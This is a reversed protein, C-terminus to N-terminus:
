VASTVGSTIPLATVNEMELVKEPDSTKVSEVPERVSELKLMVRVALSLVPCESTLMVPVLESVRVDICILPSLAVHPVSSVGNNLRPVPVIMPVAVVMDVMVRETPFPLRNSNVEIFALNVSEPNEIVDQEADSPYPPATYALIGEKRLIVKPESEKVSQM